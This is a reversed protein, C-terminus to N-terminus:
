NLLLLKGMKIILNSIFRDYKRGLQDESKVVNMKIQHHKIISHNLTTVHAQEVLSRRRSASSM